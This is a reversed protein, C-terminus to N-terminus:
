VTRIKDTGDIEGSVSPDALCLKQQQTNGPTKQSRKSGDGYLQHLPSNEGSSVTNATGFYTSMLLGVVTLDM